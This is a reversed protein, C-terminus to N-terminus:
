KAAEPSIPKVAMAQWLEVDSMTAPNEIEQPGRAAAAADAGVSRNLDRRQLTFLIVLYLAILGFILGLALKPSDTGSGLKVGIVACAVMLVLVGILGFRSSTSSLDM